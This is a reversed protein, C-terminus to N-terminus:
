VKTWFPQPVILPLVHEKM